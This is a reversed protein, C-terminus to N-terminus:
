NREAIVAILDQLSLLMHYLVLFPMALKQKFDLRIGKTSKEGRQEEVHAREMVRVSRSWPLMAMTLFVDSDIFAAGMFDTFFILFTCM